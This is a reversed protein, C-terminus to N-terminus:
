RPDQARPRRVVTVRGLVQVVVGGPMGRVAARRRRPGGGRRYAWRAECGALEVAAARSLETRHARAFDWGDLWAGRSPDGAAWGSFVSPWRAGYAAALAPWARAVEGARKRLLARAAAGVRVSDFGAPLGGGAVLARVLAKQEAALRDRPTM